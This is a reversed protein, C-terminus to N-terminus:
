VSVRSFSLESQWHPMINSSCFTQVARWVGRFLQGEAETIDAKLEWIPGWTPGRWFPPYAPNLAKVMCLLVLIISTPSALTIVSLLLQLPDARQKFPHDEEEEVYCMIILLIMWIDVKTKERIELKQWGGSKNSAM